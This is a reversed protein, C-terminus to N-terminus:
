DIFSVNKADCFGKLVQDGEAIDTISNILQKFVFVEDRSSTENFIIISNRFTEFMHDSLRNSMSSHTSSKRRQDPFNATQLECAGRLARAVLTYASASSDRFAASATQLWADGM